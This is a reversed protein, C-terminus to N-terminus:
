AAQIEILDFSYGMRRLVASEHAEEFAALDRKADSENDYCNEPLPKRYAFCMEISTASGRRKIWAPSGKRSTRLIAYKM